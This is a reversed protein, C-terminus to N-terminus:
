SLYTKLHIYHTDLQTNTNVLIYQGKDFLGVLGGNLTIIM